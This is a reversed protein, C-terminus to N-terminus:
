SRVYADIIRRLKEELNAHTQMRIRMATRIEPTMLPAARPPDGTPTNAQAWAGLLRLNENAEAQLIAYFVESMHDRQYLIRAHMALIWRLVAFKTYDDM